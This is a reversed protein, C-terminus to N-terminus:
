SMLPLMHMWDIFPYHLSQRGIIKRGDYTNIEIHFYEQSTMPDDFRIGHIPLCKCIKKAGKFRYWVHEFDEYRITAQSDDIKVTIKTEDMSAAKGPFFEKYQAVFKQTCFTLMEDTM